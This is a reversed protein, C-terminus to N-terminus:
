IKIKTIKNSSNIQQELYYKSYHTKLEDLKSSFISKVEIFSLQNSQKITDEFGFIIQDSWDKFGLQEKLISINNQTEILTKKCEEINDISKFNVIGINSRFISRSLKEGCSVSFTFLLMKLLITDELSAKPVIHNELFELYQHSLFHYNRHINSFIRYGELDFLSYDKNIEFDFNFILEIIKQKNQEMGIILIEGRQKPSLYEIVIPHSLFMEEYTQLIGCFFGKNDFLESYIYDINNKDKLTLDKQEPQNLNNLLRKIKNELNMDTWHEYSFALVYNNLAIQNMIVHKILIFLVYKKQNM